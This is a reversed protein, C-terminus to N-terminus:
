ARAATQAEAPVNVPRAARLDDVRVLAVGGLIGAGGIIQLPGPLQGLLVWAFLIAFLVETLGVFSAVRAGLRRAAGIGAVYALAAAVLSLGIVPVLWSVTHDLFHVKGFQAHMPLAGVAGAVVLVFAGITMGAWAMAVPPLPEDASSSLV